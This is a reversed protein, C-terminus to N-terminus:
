ILWEEREKEKGGKATQALILGIGEVYFKREFVDPELATFEETGLTKHFMGYEVKVTRKTPIVRAQDEAEDPYYEQYYTEKLHDYPDAWMIIGLKAGDVGAEWSGETSPVGDEYAITFEGFYWVNGEIDQAYWDYTDELVNGEEDTEVVHVVTANVGLIEKTDCTVTSTIYLTETENAEKVTVVYHYTEGPRLPFYPNDVVEVFNAPDIEVDLIEDASLLKSDSVKLDLPTPELSDNKSCAALGVFLCVVILKLNITKM